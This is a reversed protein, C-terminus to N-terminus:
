EASICTHIHEWTRKRGRGRGGRRESQSGNTDERAETLTRLMHVSSNRKEETSQKKQM